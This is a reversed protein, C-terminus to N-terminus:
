AQRLLFLLPCNGYASHADTPDVVLSRVGQDLLKLYDACNAVTKTGQPTAATFVTRTEKVADPYNAVAGRLVPDFISTGPLPAPSPELRAIAFNVGFALSLGVTAIGALLVFTKRESPIEPADMLLGGGCVRDFPM